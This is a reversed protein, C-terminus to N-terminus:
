CFMIIPSGIISRDNPNTDLVWIVCEITIRRYLIGPDGSNPYRLWIPNDKCLDPQFYSLNRGGFVQINGATCKITIQEFKEHSIKIKFNLIDDDYFEDRDRVDKGSEILKSATYGNEFNMYELLGTVSFYSLNAIQSDLALNKLKGKRKLSKLVYTIDTAKKEKKHLPKVKVNATIAKLSGGIEVCKCGYMRINDVLRANIEMETLLNNIKNPSAYIIM